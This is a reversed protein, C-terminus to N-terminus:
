KDFWSGTQKDLHSLCFITRPLFAAPANLSNSFTRPRRRWWRMCAARQRSLFLPVGVEDEWDREAIERVMGEENIRISLRLSVKGSHCKTHLNWTIASSLLHPSLSHLSQSVRHLWQWQHQHCSNRKIKIEKERSASSPLSDLGWWLIYLMTVLIICICSIGHIWFKWACGSSSLAIVTYVMGTMMTSMASDHLSAAFWKLQSGIWIIPIISITYVTYERVHDPSHPNVPPIIFMSVIAHSSSYYVLFWFCANLRDSIWLIQNTIFFLSSAREQFVLHDEPLWVRCQM